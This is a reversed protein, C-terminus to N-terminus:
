DEAYYNHTSMDAPPFTVTLKTVDERREARWPSVLNKHVKMNQIKLLIQQWM